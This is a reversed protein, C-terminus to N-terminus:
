CMDARNTLNEMVRKTLNLPVGSFYDTIDLWDAWVQCGTCKEIAMIFLNALPLAAHVQWWHHEHNFAQKVTSDMVVEFNGNETFQCRMKWFWCRYLVFNGIGYTLIFYNKKWSVLHFSASFLIGNRHNTGRYFSQWSHFVVQCVRGCQVKVGSCLTM